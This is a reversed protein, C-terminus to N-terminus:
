LTVWKNQDASQLIADVIKQGAAGIAITPFMADRKGLIADIFAQEQSLFFEKPVQIDQVPFNKPDGEGHCLYLHDPKDLDFSIAGRTGYVDYRITNNHGIACRTVHVSADAGGAFQMVLSCMDETEVPLIVDSHLDQREKIVIKTSACLRKIDGALIQALDFLHVGLDGIVGSGAYKKVFRWELRRGQWFASCKLYAINMGVIQGITGQDVLYKAYRVAPMFRYSFCTMGFASSEKEAALIECAQAYDMAIPKEVNVPKNAQLAAVAMETHLYNPTCIEVGEVDCDAILARYDRYCKVEPLNLQRQVRKLAKEDVDCIAVISAQPCALLEKIHKASIGGLGIIGIQVQKM